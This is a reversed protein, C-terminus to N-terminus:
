TDISKSLNWNRIQQATVPAPKLNKMLNRSFDTANDTKLFRNYRKEFGITSVFKPSLFLGGCASGGFHAPFIEVYGPLPLIKRFISDFQQSAAQNAKEQKSDVLDPRGVDGVFLSDGTFICWPESARSGDTILLSISEPTHGPTEFIRITTFGLEITDGEALPNFAFEASTNVSMSPILSTERSLKKAESYHDAHVHTEIVHRITLGNASATLIYHNYGVSKLPDIVAAKGSVEDGIIYSSCGNEEDLVPVIKM